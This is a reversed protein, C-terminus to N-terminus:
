YQIYKKDSCKILMTVDGSLRGGGGEIIMLLLLLLLVVIVV